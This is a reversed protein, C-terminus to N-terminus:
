TGCERRLAAKSRKRLDITSEEETPWNCGALFQTLLGKLESVQDELKKIREHNLEIGRRLLDANQGM